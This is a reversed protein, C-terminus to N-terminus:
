AADVFDIMLPTADLLLVRIGSGGEGEREKRKKGGGGVVVVREAEDAQAKGQEKKDGRREEEESAVAEAAAVVVAAAASEEEEEEEEEEEGGFRARASLDASFGSLFVFGGQGFEKTYREAQRKLKGIPIQENTCLLSSGYYTKADLWNVEQGNIFLPTVFVFDPTNNTLGKEVLEQETLFDFAVGGHQQQQQQQQQELLFKSIAQEFLQAHAKAAEQNGMGESCTAGGSEAETSTSTAYFAANDGKFQERILQRRLSCVGQISFPRLVCGQEIIEEQRSVPLDKFVGQDRELASQVLFPVM